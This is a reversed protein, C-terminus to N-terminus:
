LKDQRTVPNFLYFTMQLKQKSSLSTKDSLIQNEWITNHIARRAILIVGVIVCTNVELAMDFLIYASKKWLDLIWFLLSVAFIAHINNSEPNM